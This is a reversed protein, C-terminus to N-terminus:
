EDTTGAESEATVADAAAAPSEADGLAERTTAAAESDDVADTETMRRSDLLTLTRIGFRPNLGRLNPISEGLNFNGAGSSPLPTLGPSPSLQPLFERLEIDVCPNCLSEQALGVSAPVALLLLSLWSISQTQRFM